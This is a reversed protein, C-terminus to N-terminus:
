EDEDYPDKYIRDLQKQISAAEDRSVQIAFEKPGLGLPTFQLMYTYGDADPPGTLKFHERVEDKSTRSVKIYYDGGHYFQEKGDRLLTVTIEGCIAEHVSPGDRALQEIREQKLRKLEEAAQIVHDAISALARPSDALRGKLWHDQSALYDAIGNLSEHTNM